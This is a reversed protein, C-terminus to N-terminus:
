RSNSDANSGANAVATNETSEENGVSLSLSTGQAEVAELASADNAPASAIALNDAAGGTEAVDKKSGCAALALATCATVLLRRM